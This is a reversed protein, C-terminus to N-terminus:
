GERLNFEIEVRAKQLTPSLQDFGFPWAALPNKEYSLVVLYADLLWSFAVLSLQTKVQANTSANPGRQM